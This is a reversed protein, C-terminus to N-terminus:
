IIKRSITLINMYDSIINKWSFVDLGYKRINEREIKCIQRNQEIIYKVYEIDNLKNNSIVNIFPKSLDLNAKSCESIVVGLGCILAEKIVLPDAEGDSLLVLNGYETLNDYLIDKSWEGLYNQKSTDFLSDHYNGVFDISEISQYKFQSKRHEIKGVYISKDNYKPNITYRFADERAGNRLVNIKSASYGNNIYVNKIEESLVILNIHNQMKITPMFINNFYGAQKKEFNEQTIYAYHTTLYVKKCNLKDAISFYDDYMIHVIDPNEKNCKKIINKTSPESIFQIDFDNKLNCYYDWVISECAGWGKPPINGNGVGVLIIKM